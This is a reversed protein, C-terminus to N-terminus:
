LNFFTKNMYERCEIVRDQIAQIKDEDREVRFSWIREELPWEVFGAIVAKCEFDFDYIGRQTIYKNFTELDYTHNAIIMLEIWNPTNGEPHKYAERRLEAEVIHYPTNNLCYDVFAEKAGTLWMYGIVQWENSSPIPNWKARTFSFGDWSSKTDRIVDAKKIFPGKFIDPTGKIFGNSLHEENKVFVDRNIISVTTISEEETDNGKDLYKANVETFRNYVNSVYLDVLHTKVGASLERNDRKQILDDLTQQQKETLKPKITLELLTEKQKETLGSTGVMIHSLSSCRFEIENANKVNSQM